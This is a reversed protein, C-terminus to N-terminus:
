IPLCDAIVLRIMHLALVLLDTDDGVIVVSCEPKTLEVAKQVIMVDADQQSQFVEIGLSRLHGKLVEIFRQKNHDNSLFVSKKSQLVQDVTFHMDMSQIPYRKQHIHDKTSKETYGDFVVQVRDVLSGCMNRIYLGYSKIINSFTCGKPWSVRQILAGGDYVIKTKNARLLADNNGGKTKAVAPVLYEALQSKGGTRMFGNDDFLSPAVSCLEYGALVENM